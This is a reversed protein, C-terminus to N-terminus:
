GRFDEPDVQELFDNFAALESEADEAPVAAAEDTGEVDPTEVSSAAFVDEAVWIPSRTRLALAVADSPRADLVVLGDRTRLSVEAFYTGDEIRTIAVKEVLAGLRRLTEALLDHTLPRPLEEGELVVVIATAETAGIWIPLVRGSSAVPELLLVPQGRSDIALSAVRVQIM